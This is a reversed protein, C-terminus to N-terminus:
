GLRDAAIRRRRWVALATLGTALASPEPVATVNDVGIAAVIQDGQLSANEASLIRLSQVSALVQAYSEGGRVFTMDAEALSMRLSQWGSGPALTVPNTSAFWTGSSGSQNTGIAVRVFLTEDVSLNIADLAIGKVGAAAYDGSWQDTNFFVHRGAVRGGNSDFRLYADGVGAPGGTAVNTTVTATRGIRWAAATGGQFDDVQGLTVGSAPAALLLALAASVGFVSLCRPM